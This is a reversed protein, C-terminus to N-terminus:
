KGTKTWDVLSARTAPQCKPCFYADMGKVGATRIKSGCRPCETKRRVKLFDRVKVKTPEDRRAVEEVAQAMVNRIAAHLRLADEHSVLGRSAEQADRGTEGHDFVMVIGPHDLGAVAQVEQRFAARAQPDRMARASMVKVAVPVSQRSHLGRWVEAM